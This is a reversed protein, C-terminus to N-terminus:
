REKAMQREVGVFHGLTQGGWHGLAQSPGNGFAFLEVRGDNIGDGQGHFFPREFVARGVIAVPEGRQGAGGGLLM